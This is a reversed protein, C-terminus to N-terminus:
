SPAHGLGLAETSSVWGIEVLLDDGELLLSELAGRYRLPQLDWDVLHGLYELLAAVIQKASKSM